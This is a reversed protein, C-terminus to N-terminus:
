SDSPSSPYNINQPLLIPLGIWYSLQLPQSDNERDSKNSCISHFFSFPLGILIDAM